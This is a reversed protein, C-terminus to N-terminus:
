LGAEKVPYAEPVLQKQLSTMTAAGVPNTDDHGLLHLLGHICLLILEDEFKIGADEAQMRATDVSVAIDGLYVPEGPVSQSDSCPFSIVDTPSPDNMWKQHIQSIEHDDVLRVCVEGSGAECIRNLTDQMRGALLTTDVEISSSNQIEIIWGGYCSESLPPETDSM